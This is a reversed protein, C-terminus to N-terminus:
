NLQTAPLVIRFESGKELQSEVEVKGGHLEVIEKVIPLGLGTGQIEKGPRNVRFFRDFINELDRSPIGLGNDSVLISIESKQKSSSLKVEGGDPTFKIANTVLNLVATQLKNKDAQISEPIADEAIFKIKRREAIPQAISSVGAFIDTLSVEELKLALKGSELVSIELLDRILGELRNTEEQIIGLFEQRKETDLDEGKKLMTATFGKISTLPTRLEHSVSSVFDSKMRDVESEKTVDRLITIIGQHGEQKEDDSLLKISSTTAALVQGEAENQVFPQSKLDEEGKFAAEWRIKFGKDNVISTFKKGLYEKKVNLLKEAAPNALIVEGNQDSVVVGEAMGALTVSLREKETALAKETKKIERLDRVFASFYSRESVNFPTVTLEVPFEEGDRNMAPVEVRNNIVPGEKTAHYHDIGAHHASRMSHPIIMDSMEEGLAEDRSWGFLDEAQRSWDTVKGNDDIVVVADLSADIIGRTLAESKQIESQAKSVVQKIDQKQEIAKELERIEQSTYVPLGKEESSGHLRRRLIEAPRAVFVHAALGTLLCLGGFLLLSASINGFNFLLTLLFAVLFLIGIQSSFRMAPYLLLSNCYKLNNLASKPSFFFSIEVLEM